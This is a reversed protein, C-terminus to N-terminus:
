NKNINLNNYKYTRRAPIGPHKKTKKRDLNM